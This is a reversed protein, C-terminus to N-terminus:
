ETTSTTKATKDPKEAKKATPLPRDEPNYRRTTWAEITVDKITLEKQDKFLSPNLTMSAHDDYFIEPSCPFVMFGRRKFPNLSRETNGEDFFRIERFGICRAMGDIFCAIEVTKKYAKFVRDYEFRLDEVTNYFASFDIQKQNTKDYIAKHFATYTMEKNSLVKPAEDELDHLKEQLKNVYSKLLDTVWLLFSPPLVWNQKYLARNNDTCRRAQICVAGSDQDTGYIKYDGFQRHYRYWTAFDPPLEKSKDSGEEYGIEDCFIVSFAPLLTHETVYKSEYKYTMRGDIDWMPNSTVLCPIFDDENDKFFQYSKDLFEYYALSFRADEKESETSEESSLIENYHDLRGFEKAREFQLKRWAEKSASYSIQTGSATKGTGPAGILLTMYCNDCDNNTKKMRRFAVIFKILRLLSWSWLVTVIVFRIFVSPDTLTKWGELTTIDVDPFQIFLILLIAPTLSYLATVIMPHKRCFALITKKM